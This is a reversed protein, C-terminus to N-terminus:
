AKMRLGHRSQLDSRIKKWQNLPSLDPNAMNDVPLYFTQELLYQGSLAAHSVHDTFVIWSSQAPFDIQVKKVRAQYVDDSKMMDHLHIMYHDYPSRLTKTTGILKLVQAKIKSYRPIKPAFHNLVDAFPEGLNWVRPENHPNVNCFVRMIRQGYVPSASFSDVHLRTDDKRKSSSRGSVQAPRFSTRGWRLYPIYSPLATQVLQHAFEAYGHMMSALKSALGDVGKQYAGLKKSQINYSVNKHPNYSANKRSNDLIDTSLLVPAVSSFFYNPFLLVKGGELQNISEQQNIQDLDQTLLYSNM